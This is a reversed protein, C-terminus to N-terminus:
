MKGAWINPELIYNPVLKDVKDWDFSSIDLEYRKDDLLCILKDEYLDISIEHLFDRDWVEDVRYEGEFMDGLDIVGDILRDALNVKEWRMDALDCKWYNKQQWIYIMGHRPVISHTYLQKYFDMKSIDYLWIEIKKTHRYISAITNCVLCGVRLNTFSWPGNIVYIDFQNQSFDWWSMLQYMAKPLNSELDWRPVLIKQNDQYIYLHDSSINILM